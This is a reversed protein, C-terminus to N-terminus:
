KPDERELKITSVSQPEDVDPTAHHPRYIVGREATLMSAFHEAEADDTFTVHLITTM